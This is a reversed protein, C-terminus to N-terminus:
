EFVAKLDSFRLVFALKGNSDVNDFKIPEQSWCDCVLCVFNVKICFYINSLSSYYFLQGNIYKIVNNSTLIYTFKTVVIFNYSYHM